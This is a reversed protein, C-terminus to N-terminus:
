SVIANYIGIFLISSVSVILILMGACGGGGGSNGNSESEEKDCKVSCNFPSGNLAKKKGGSKRNDFEKGCWRCNYTSM